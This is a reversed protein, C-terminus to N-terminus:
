GKKERQLLKGALKTRWSRGKEIMKEKNRLTEETEAIEVKFVPTEPFDEFKEWPCVQDRWSSGSGESLGQIAIHIKQRLHITEMGPAGLTGYTDLLRDPSDLPL